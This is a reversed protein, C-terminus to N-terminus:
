TWCLSTCLGAGTFSYGCTGTCVPPWVAPTCSQLSPGKSGSPWYASWSCECCLSDAAAKAANPATKETSQPLYDQEASSLGCSNYQTWTQDEWNRSLYLSAVTLGHLNFFLLMEQLSLSLISPSNLWSSIVISVNSSRILTHSYTISYTFIRGALAWQCSLFCCACASIHSIRNSCLFVYKTLTIPCQFLSGLSATFDGDKYSNSEVPCLGPCGPCAQGQKLM